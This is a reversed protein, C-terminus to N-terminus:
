YIDADLGAAMLMGLDRCRTTFQPSFDGSLLLTPQIAKWRLGAVIREVSNSAGLGDNGARVYLAYPTGQTQEICPYYIREFFDKLLGSMSGFNETTGLVIGAAGLVDESTTDLPTKHVATVSAFEPHCAGELTALALAQTNSSPTNSVILLQKCGTSDAM